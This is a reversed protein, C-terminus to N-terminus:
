NPSVPTGIKQKLLKQYYSFRERSPVLRLSYEKNLVFNYTIKILLHLYNLSTDAGFCRIRFGKVELFLGLFIKRSIRSTLKM